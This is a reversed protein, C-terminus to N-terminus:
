QLLVLVSPRFKGFLFENMHKAILLSKTILQGNIGLQHPSGRTKWGMFQKATGWTKETSDIGESIKNEKFKREESRKKNNIKNRIQKYQNWADSLEVCPAGPNQKAIDIAAKKLKDRKKMLDKTESTLWPM